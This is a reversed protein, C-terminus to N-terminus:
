VIIMFITRYQAHPDQNYIGKNQIQKTRIEENNQRERGHFLHSRHCAGSCLQNWELKYLINNIHGDSDHAVLSDSFAECAAALEDTPVISDKPVFLLFIKDKVKLNNFVLQQSTGIDTSPLLKSIDEEFKLRLGLAAFVLTTITLLVYMVAKHEKFYSFIKVTLEPLM